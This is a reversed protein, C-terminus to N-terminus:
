RSFNILFRQDGIKGDGMLHNISNNAGYELNIFGQADAMGLSDVVVAISYADSYQVNGRFTMMRRDELRLSVIADQQDSIQAMVSIVKDNERGEVSFLGRGQQQLFFYPSSDEPSTQHGHSTFIDDDLEVGDSISGTSVFNLSFLQSDLQGKADLRKIEQGRKQVLLIGQADAMGSNTLEIEVFDESKEMVHGGFRMSHDGDLTITIEARQDDTVIVSAATVLRSERGQLSFTGDGRSILNLTDDEADFSDLESVITESKDITLDSQNDISFDNVSAFNIEDPDLVVETNLSLDGMDHEMVSTDTSSNATINNQSYNFYITSLTLSGLLATFLFSKPHDKIIKLLQM